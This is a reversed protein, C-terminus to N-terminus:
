SKPNPNPNRNPKPKPNPNPGNVVESTTTLRAEAAEMAGAHEGGLRSRLHDLGKKITTELM